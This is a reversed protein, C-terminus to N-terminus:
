ALFEKASWTPGPSPRSCCAKNATPLLSSRRGAAATMLTTDQPQQRGAKPQKLPGSLPACPPQQSGSQVVAGRKKSCALPPCANTHDQQADTNGGADCSRGLRWVACAMSYRCHHQQPQQAAAPSAPQAARGVRSQSQRRQGGAGRRNSPDVTKHMHQTSCTRASCRASCSRNLAMRSPWSLLLVVGAPGGCACLAPPAAPPLAAPLLWGLESNM